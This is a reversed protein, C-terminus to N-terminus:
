LFPNTRQEAAPTTAPGHGPYIRTGEPLTLLSNRISTILEEHNGGVLDTRGISGRFLTDGVVAFGADRFGFTISGPSHGPTHFLQIQFPGIVLKQERGSILLDAEKIRMDAIIPYKGSGNLGPKGLWDKELESVYVPVDYMERMEDVAGIHDFHAHTLLVALPTWGKKELRAKIKESEAGPDIILCNGDEHAVIYCNTQVPGLTLIDITLM